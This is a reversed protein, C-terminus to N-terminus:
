AEEAIPPPEDHFTYGVDPKKATVEPTPVAPVLTKTTVELMPAAAVEEADVIELHDPEALPKYATTAAASIRLVSHCRPCIGKPRAMQRPLKLKTQCRPCIIHM